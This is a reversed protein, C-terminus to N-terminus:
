WFLIGVSIKLNWCCILRFYGPWIIACLFLISRFLTKCLVYRAHVFRDRPVCCARACWRAGDKGFTRIVVLLLELHESSPARVVGTNTFLMKCINALNGSTFIFSLSFNSSSMCSPENSTNTAPSLSSHPTELEFIPFTYSM